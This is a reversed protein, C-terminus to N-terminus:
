LRKSADPARPHRQALVARVRKRSDYYHVRNKFPPGYTVGPPLYYRHGKVLHLTWGREALTADLARDAPAVAPVAAGRERAATNTPATPEDAQTGQTWALLAVGAKVVAPQTARKNNLWDGLCRKKLGLELALEGRRRKRRCMTNLVARRQSPAGGVGSDVLTSAM